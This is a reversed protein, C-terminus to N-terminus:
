DKKIRSALGLAIAVQPACNRMATM